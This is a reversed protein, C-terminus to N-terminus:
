VLHSCATLIANRVEQRQQERSVPDMMMPITEVTRYPTAKATSSYMIMSVSTDSDTGAYIRVIPYRSIDSSESQMIMDRLYIMVINLCILHLQLLTFINM